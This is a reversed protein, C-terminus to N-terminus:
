AGEKNENIWSIASAITMAKVGAKSLIPMFEPPKKGTAKTIADVMEKSTILYEQESNADESVQSGTQTNVTAVPPIGEWRVFMRKAHKKDSEGEWKPNLMWVMKAPSKLSVVFRDQKANKGREIPSGDYLPLNSLRLGTAAEFQAVDADTNLYIGVKRYNDQTGYLDVLPTATSDGNEKERRVVFGIQEFNEGDELGPLNVTFGAMILNDVSLILSRAIETTLETELSLPISVKAGTGPHYLTTLAFNNETM